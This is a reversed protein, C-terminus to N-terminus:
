KELQFVGFYDSSGDAGFASLVRVELSANEMLSVFLLSGRQALPGSTPNTTFVYSKVRGAGPFAFDSMADHELPVVSRYAAQSFVAEDGEENTTTVTGVADGSGVLDPDFTLSLRSTSSFGRRIFSDESAQGIVAGEYAEGPATKYESLNTCAGLVVVAIANISTLHPHVLM